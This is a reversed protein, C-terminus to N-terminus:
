LRRSIWEDTPPEQPPREIAHTRKAAAISDKYDEKAAAKKANSQTFFECLEMEIRCALADQFLPDMKPVENLMLVVRVDLPASENTLIHGDEIVRNLDDNQLPDLPLLRLFGAPLPFANQFNFLPPTVSAPLQMRKTAFGWVHRRLESELCRTYAEKCANAPVTGEDLSTIRQQGLKSLAANCIDVASNM